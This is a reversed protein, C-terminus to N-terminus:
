KHNCFGEHFCLPIFLTNNKECLRMREFLDERTYSKVKPVEIHEQIDEFTNNMDVGNLGGDINSEMPIDLGGLPESEETTIEIETTEGTLPDYKHLFRRWKKVQGDWSRKSCVQDKPPTVMHQNTRQDKPVLKIYNNYEPTKKGLLVQKERQVLRQENTEKSTTNLFNPYLNKTHPQNKQIDTM